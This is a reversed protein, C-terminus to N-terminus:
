AWTVTDTLGGINDTWHSTEADRVAAATCCAASYYSPHPLTDMTFLHMDLYDTVACLGVIGLRQRTEFGCAFHREFGEFDQPEPIQVRERRTM